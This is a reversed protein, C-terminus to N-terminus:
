LIYSVCCHQKLPLTDHGDKTLLTELINLHQRAFELIVSFYAPNHRTRRGRVDDDVVLFAILLLTQQDM